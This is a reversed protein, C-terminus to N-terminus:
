KDPNQCLKEFRPDKRLPDWLPNIRLDGFTEGNPVELLHPLASIASDIDGTQAQVIALATEAFPKALADNDYDAIAHRAQELAKEKEGLGAYAWALYCPLNRADVVVASDPTPKMATVARTFTARAEDDKGAFKQCLGLLTMTRPDNAVSAPTNQQIQAIAEDFRREYYFQLARAVTLGEDQSNAPAKALVEAAEKLRGQTQFSTAKAALATENGPSMELIAIM